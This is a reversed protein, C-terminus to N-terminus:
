QTERMMVINRYELQSVLTRCCEITWVVVEDGSMAPERVVTRQARERVCAATHKQLVMSFRSRWYAKVVSKPAGKSACLKDVCVDFIKRAQPGLRGYSEVVVPIFVSNAPIVDSYKRLKEAERLRAACEPAPFGAQKLLAVWTVAIADHTRFRQNGVPCQSTFHFGETDVTDHKCVCPTRTLMPLDMGLRALARQKFNKASLQQEPTKPVCTLWAGGEGACSDFRLKSMKDMRIRLLQYQRNSLAEGLRHQLGRLTVM